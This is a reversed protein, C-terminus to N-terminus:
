YSGKLHVAILEDFQAETTEAFPASFGVGANNVLYDFRDRKWVRARASKVAAAFADFTASKGVDLALVAAKRGRREIEAAVAHGEKEGSRYTLVIDIGRDALRLATSRGLGRSGGTILAIPNM